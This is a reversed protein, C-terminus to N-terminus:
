RAELHAHLSLVQDAYWGGCVDRRRAGCAYTRLGQRLGHRATYRRLATVGADIQGSLGGCDPTTCHWRPSVQMPGICCHSRGDPRGRSERWMVSLALRPCVGQRQAAQVVMVPVAGVVEPPHVDRVAAIATWLRAALLLDAPTIM